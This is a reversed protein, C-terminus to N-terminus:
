PIPAFDDPEAESIKYPYIARITKREKQNLREYDKGYQQNAAKEWLQNYAAKIENHVSIYIDYSTGEDNKLSIIAKEPSLPKTNEQLPNTVFETALNKLDALETKVENVLMEDKRNVLINLVNRENITQNIPPDDSMPPLKVTLGKDSDITTTVLFFILLLFAIDAMSSANIEPNIRQEM